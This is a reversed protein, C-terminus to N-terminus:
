ACKLGTLGHQQTFTLLAFGKFNDSLKINQLVSSDVSANKEDGAFALSTFITTLLFFFLKM